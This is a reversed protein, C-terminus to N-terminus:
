LPKRLSFFIEDYMNWLLHRLIPRFPILNRLKHELRENYTRLEVRVKEFKNRNSWSPPNCFYDFTKEDFARVHTPDRWAYTSAFYPVTGSVTGGPKLIRYVEDLARAPSALHELVGIMEVETFRDIPLPWIRFNLDFHLDAKVQDCVDINFWDDRYDKGCGLNLRTLDTRNM